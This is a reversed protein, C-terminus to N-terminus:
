LRGHMEIQQRLQTCRRVDITSKDIILDFSETGFTTSCSRADVVLFEIEHEEMAQLSAKDPPSIDIGVLRGCYGDIGAPTCRHAAAGGPPMVIRAETRLKFRLSHAWACVCVFFAKVASSALM